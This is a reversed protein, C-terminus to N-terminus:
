YADRLIQGAANLQILRKYKEELEITRKKTDPKDPDYDEATFHATFETEAQRLLDAAWAGGLRAAPVAAKVGNWAKFVGTRARAEDAGINRGDIEIPKNPDVPKSFDRFQVAAADVLDSILKAKVEAPENLRAVATFVAMRESHKVRDREEPTKTTYRNVWNIVDADTKLFQPNTQVTRGSAIVDVNALFRTFDKPKLEGRDFAAELESQQPLNAGTRIRDEFGSATTTQLKKIRDAEDKARKDRAPQEVALEAPLVEGTFTSVDMEDLNGNQQEAALRAAGADPSRLWDRAISGMLAEKQRGAREKGERVKSILEIRTHRPLGAEVEKGGGVPVMVNGGKTRVLESEMQTFEDLQASLPKGVVASIREGYQWWMGSSVVKQVRAEKASDTLNMRGVTAAAAAYNGARSYQEAEVGIQENAKIIQAKNQELTLVNSYRGIAEINDNEVHSILTPSWGDKRAREGVSKRYGDWAKISFETWKEPDAPTDQIFKNIQTEVGGRIVREQSLRGEDVLANKKQKFREQQLAYDAFMGGVNSLAQGAQSIAAGFAMDGRGDMQPGLSPTAALQVGTITPIRAM